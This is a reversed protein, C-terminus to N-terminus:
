FVGAQMLDRACRRLVVKSAELASEEAFVDEADSVGLVARVAGKRGVPVAVGTVGSEFEGAVVACGQAAAEAVAARLADRETVSAATYAELEATAIEAEAAEPDGWALLMRGMATHFLPLRSGITFGFTVGTNRLTSQAVMLAGGEEPMALIVERGLEAAAGNLLPQIVRGFQNGRLFSGALVLIRPTLSFVRGERRVYGLHVLTLLLRRAAAPDLGTRRGIESLTMHSNDEDFAKLVSMGKLFTLSIDRNPPTEKPLKGIGDFREGTRPM